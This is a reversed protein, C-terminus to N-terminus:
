RLVMAFMIASASANFPMKAASSVVYAHYRCFPTGYSGYGGIAGPASATYAM